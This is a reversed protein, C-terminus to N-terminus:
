SVHWRWGGLANPLAVPIQNIVVLVEDIIGRDWVRGTGTPFPLRYIQVFLKIRNPIEAADKRDVIHLTDEKMIALIALLVQDVDLGCM